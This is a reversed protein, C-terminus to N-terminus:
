VGVQSPEVGYRERFRKIFASVSTYGVRGAVSKVPLNTSLLLTLGHSLRAEAVVQRLSRGEAALHRRLTAGSVALTSELDASSWDRQPEAAVMTRIRVSLTPASPYLLGRHGQAYLRLVVSTMLFRARVLDGRELADLWTMLDGVHEDLAINALDRRTDTVAERLLQRAAGLVSDDLAIGIASYCGSVPDPNNEVDLAMSGPVLFSDGATFVLWDDAVRIRKHGQLLIVLVPTDFNVAHLIHDKKVHVRLCCSLPEERSAVVTLREILAEHATSEFRRLPTVSVAV